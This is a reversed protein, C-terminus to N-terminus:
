STPVFLITKPPVQPEPKLPAVGTLIAAGAASGNALKGFGATEGGGVTGALQVAGLQKVVACVMEPVAVM